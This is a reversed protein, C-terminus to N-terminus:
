DQWSSVDGSFIELINHIDEDSVKKTVEGVINNRVSLHLHPPGSNLELSIIVGIQKDPNFFTRFESHIYAVPPVPREEWDDAPPVFLYDNLKM